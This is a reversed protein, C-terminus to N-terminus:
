WVRTRGGRPAEAGGLQMNRIQSLRTSEVRCPLAAQQILLMMENGHHAADADAGCSPQLSQRRDGCLLFEQLYFCCSRTQLTSGRRNDASGRVWCRAHLADALESAQDFSRCGM